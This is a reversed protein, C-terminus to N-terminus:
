GFWGRICLALLVGLARSHEIGLCTPHIILELILDTSSKCVYVAANLIVIINMTWQKLLLCSTIFFMMFLLIGAANMSILITLYADLFEMKLLIQSFFSITKYYFKRM